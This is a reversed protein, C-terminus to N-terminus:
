ARAGPAPPMSQPVGAVVRGACEFAPRLPRMNGGRVRICVVGAFGPAVAQRVGLGPGGNLTSRPHGCMLGRRHDCPGCLLPFHGPRGVIEAYLRPHEELIRHCERHDAGLFVIAGLEPRPHDHEDHERWAELRASPRGCVNCASMLDDLQQRATLPLQARIASPSPKKM